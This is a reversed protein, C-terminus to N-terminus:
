DKEEETDDPIPVTGKFMDDITMNPDVEDEIVKKEEKPRELKERSILCQWGRKTAVTSDVWQASHLRWGGTDLIKNFETENFQGDGPWKCLFVM